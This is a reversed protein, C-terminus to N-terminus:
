KASVFLAPYLAKTYALSAAEDKKLEAIFDKYDVTGFEGNNELVCMLVNSDEKIIHANGGFMKISFIIEACPDSIGNAKWAYLAYLAAKCFDSNETNYNM